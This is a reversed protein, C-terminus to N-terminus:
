HYLIQRGMLAPSGLKNGSGPLDWMSHDRLGHPVIVSGTSQLLLWQVGVPSLRRTAVFVWHLWLDFV